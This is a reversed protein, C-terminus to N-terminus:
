RVTVNTPAPLRDALTTFTHDSCTAPNGAADKSTVRYHYTTGSKLGTLAISHNTGLTSSGNISNGYLTSTGYEVLTDSPENTAWSVTAGTTTIGSTTVNSITPPTTDGGGGGSGGNVTVSGGSGSCSVANASADSALIGTIGVALTGPSADGAISLTLVAFSSPIATTGGYVLVRIKGSAASGSVTKGADTSGQTGTVSVFSLGSVPTLDFQLATIPTSGQTLGLSLNINAGPAGSATGVRVQGQAQVLAPLCCLCLCCLMKKSFLTLILRKFVVMNAAQRDRRDCATQRSM